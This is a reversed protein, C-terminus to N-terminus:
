EGLHVGEEAVSKKMLLALPILALSLVAFLWFADLYAMAAGQQQRVSEITELAM